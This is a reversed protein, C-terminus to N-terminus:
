SARLAFCDFSASFLASSFLRAPAKFPANLPNNEPKMFPMLDFFVRGNAITGDSQVDYAMIVPIRPDSVAVYLTKENPSLGIGNPRTVQDTLLTLHGNPKLRYVGQFPLEKKPDEM